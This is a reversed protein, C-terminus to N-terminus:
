RLIHPLIHGRANGFAMHQIAILAWHCCSKHGIPNKDPMNRALLYATFKCLLLYHLSLMRINQLNMNCVEAQSIGHLIWDNESYPMRLLRRTLM